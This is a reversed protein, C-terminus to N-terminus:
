TIKNGFREIIQREEPTTMMVLVDGKKLIYDKPPNYYWQGHSNLALLVTERLDKIPINNLPQSDFREPITIEELRQKFDSRLMEDLFKTVTPRLMESAARLGGIFTPTIVRDAGAQEIKKAHNINKSVAVIKLAPNLQRATLCIVLNTNDDGTVAFIGKAEEIGMSLLFEEETSDGTVYPTGPVDEILHDLIEMHLDSIVMPRNTAFLELAINRGVRGCGCVIYHDKLKKIQKVMQTRKFTNRIDGEIFLAIFNSLFYTLVGFGSYALFITFLRGYPHTSLDIVEHFGITSITIGTMYFSNIWTADPRGIYHYGITGIILVIAFAAGAIRLRNIVDYLEGM